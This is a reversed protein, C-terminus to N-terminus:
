QCETARAMRVVNTTKFEDFRGTWPAFGDAYVQLKFQGNNDLPIRLSYNGTGDCSFMYQGNALVMACLPTQSDQLLVKGGIYIFKGASGPYVGPQPFSNYDPCTGSPTMVVTEVTSATLVDVKPFFGQAYIQRKVTGNSERPLDILSFPGTPNCSFMYQGSALVMACIKTGDSTEVEGTLDVYAPDDFDTVTKLEYPGTEYDWYSNAAIVYSGAGLSMTIRSNSTSGSPDDDNQAIVASPDTPNSLFEDELLVLYTDFANSTLTITLTGSSKLNLLYLDYYTFDDDGVLNSVLCESGDLSANITQNAGIPTTSLCNASLLHPNYTLLLLLIVLKDVGPLHSTNMVYTRINWNCSGQKMRIEPQIVLLIDAQNRSSM